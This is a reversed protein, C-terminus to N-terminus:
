YSVGINKEERIKNRASAAFYIGFLPVFAYCFAVLFCNEGTAEANAGATWCPAFFTLLCLGVNDFCGCLKHSWEEANYAFFGAPDNSM